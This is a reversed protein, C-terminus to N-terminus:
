LPMVLKSIWDIGVLELITGVVLTVLLFAKGIDQGKLSGLLKPERSLYASAAYLEEGMLTYDCTTIFFPLQTYADTGAIQIAGISGGTEAFLLSEAYFYGMLIVTAPKERVLQGNVAVAYSFQKDAVFMVNDENFADPRGADLYAERVVEQSVAYVIPDYNMVKLTTEYEATRQAIRGLINVAALTSVEGISRLGHVFYVAKGMETARGLAEEVADLGAIKRVYMDQNRRAMSIFLLVVGSYFIMFFLNNLKNVKLFNQKAIATPITGVVAQLDGRKAVFRAYYRKGPRVRTVQGAWTTTDVTSYANAKFYQLTDIADSLGFYKRDESARPARLADVRNMPFAPYFPGTPSEGLFIEYFTGDASASDTPADWVLVVSTGNDNPLDKMWVSNPIVKNLDAATPTKTTSVVARYKGNVPSTLMHKWQIAQAGRRVRFMAYYRKAPEVLRKRFAGAEGDFELYSKVVLYQIRDLVERKGFIRPATSALHTLGVVRGARSFPGTPSESIVLEYSVDKVTEADKFATWCVVLGHGNISQASDIWVSDPLPLSIATPDPAGPESGARAHGWAALFVCLLAIRALRSAV